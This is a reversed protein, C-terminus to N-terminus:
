RHLHPFTRRQEEDNNHDALGGLNRGDQAIVLHTDGQQRPGHVTDDVFPDKEGCTVLVTPFQVLLHAPTLIPSVFFDHELDPLQKPGLYLLAMARM